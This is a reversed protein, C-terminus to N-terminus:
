ATMRWAFREKLARADLKGSSLMPVEDDALMVVVSRCRTRPSGNACRPACSTPTRRNRVARCGCRLRSSAPRTRSRRHRRRARRARHRGRDRSRGRAALRERGRDQDHRRAPRHLLLLRRRRRPVPRRHPVLRRATFSRTRARPRLLGGHPVPQPAVAGRGAGTECAAGTDPDVIKAEFGPVPRGFSGRRHEPQDGEDDSALCVSGTETMGLM